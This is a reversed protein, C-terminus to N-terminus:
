PCVSVKNRDTPWSCYSISVLFTHPIDSVFFSFIGDLGSKLQGRAVEHQDGKCFLVVEGCSCEFSLTVECENKMVITTVECENKMVITISAVEMPLVDDFFTEITGMFTESKVTIIADVESSEDLVPM